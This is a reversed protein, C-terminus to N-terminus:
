GQTEQYGGLLNVATTTSPFWIPELCSNDFVRPLGGTLADIVGAVNALPCSIALLKRFLVLSFSGSTHTASWQFATPTRIGGNAAQPALLEFTGQPPSAVSAVTATKSANGAQDTYTLTGTPTGGGGTATWELAGMVGDGLAAGNRDRSPLAAATIAQSTTLTTSLGSNEWLRDILWLVGPVNSMIDMNAAYALGSGPNARAIQTGPGTIATGNVGASPATAPGPNGSAYRPNYGRTAGVAAMTVGVKLLPVPVQMGALAGDLTTITM